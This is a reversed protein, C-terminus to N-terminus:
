KSEHFYSDIKVINPTSKFFKGLFILYNIIQYKEM